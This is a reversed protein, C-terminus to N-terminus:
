FLCIGVAASFFLGRSTQRFWLLACSFFPLPFDGWATLGHPKRKYEESKWAMKQNNKLFFNRSKKLLWVASKKLRLV